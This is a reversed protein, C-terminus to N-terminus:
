RRESAADARVLRTDVSLKDGISDVVIERSRNGFRLSHNFLKLHLEPVSASSLELDMEARYRIKHRFAEGLLKGRIDEPVAPSIDAVETPASHAVLTGEVLKDPGEVTFHVPLYSRGDSDRLVLTYDGPQSFQRVLTGRYVRDRGDVPTNPRTILVTDNITGIEIELAGDGSRWTGALDEQVKFSAKGPSPDAPAVDMVSPGFGNTKGAVVTLWADGPICQRVTEGVRFKQIAHSAVIDQDYRTRSREVKLESTFDIMPAYAQAAVALADRSARLQRDYEAMRRLVDIKGDLRIAEISEFAPAPAGGDRCAVSYCSYYARIARNLAIQADTALRRSRNIEAMRDAAAQAAGLSAMADRQYEAIRSQRMMRDIKLAIDGLDKLQSLWAKRQAETTLSGEAQKRVIEQYRLYGEGAAKSIDGWPFDQKKGSGISGYKSFTNARSAISKLDKLVAFRDVPSQRSFVKKWEDANKALSEKLDLISAIESAAVYVVSVSDQVLQVDTVFDARDQALGASKMNAIANPMELDRLAIMTGDVEGTTWLATSLVRWTEPAAECSMRVCGAGLCGSRQTIRDAFRIIDRLDTARSAPGDAATAPATAWASLVLTAFITRALMSM